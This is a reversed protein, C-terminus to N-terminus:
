NIFWIVCCKESQTNLDSHRQKGSHRYQFYRLIWRCEFPFLHSHQFQRWGCKGLSGVHIGHRTICRVSPCLNALFLFPPLFLSLSFPFNSPPFPRKHSYAWLSCTSWGLPSVSVGDLLYRLQLGSEALRGIRLSIHCMMSHLTTPLWWKGHKLGRNECVKVRGGCLM